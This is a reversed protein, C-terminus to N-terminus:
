NSSNAKRSTTRKIKNICQLKECRNKSYLGTKIFDFRRFKEQNKNIEKLDIIKSIAVKFKRSKSKRKFIQIDEKDIEELYDKVEFNNDKLQFLNQM